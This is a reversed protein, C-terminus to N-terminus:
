QPNLIQQFTEYQGLLSNLPLNFNVDLRIGQFKSGAHDSAVRLFGGFEQDFVFPLNAAPQGDLKMRVRLDEGESNLELKAWKYNYDKLAERAVEVQNAQPTGAPLAATLIETGALRIHGEEGPSSYLFGDEFRLKGGQWRVPIRGNLTGQGQADFNAIQALLPAMGLRDCFLDVGLDPDSGIRIPGSFVRGGCWQFRGQEVFLGPGPEVQFVIEGPDLQLRGLSLAEFKVVQAPASRMSLLDPFAMKLEIGQVKFNTDPNELIGEEIRLSAGLSPQGGELRLDLKARLAGRFQHGQAAPLWQGLNEAERIPLDLDVAVGGDLTGSPLPALRGSITGNMQPLVAGRISGKLGVGQPDPQLRIVTRGLNLQQYSAKGVSLEGPPMGKELPWRYPLVGSLSRFEIERAPDNLTANSFAASGQTQIDGNPNVGAQGAIEIQPFHASTSGASIKPGITTL